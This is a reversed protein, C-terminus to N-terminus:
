VGQMLGPTLGLPSRDPWQARRLRLGYSSPHHRVHPKVRTVGAEESLVRKSRGKGPAQKPGAGAASDSDLGHEQEAIRFYADQSRRVIRESITRQTHRRLTAPSAQKGACLLLASRDVVSACAQRAWIRAM